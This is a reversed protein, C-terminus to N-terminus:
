SMEISRQDCNYDLVAYGVTEETDGEGTNVPNSGNFCRTSHQAIDNPGTKYAVM